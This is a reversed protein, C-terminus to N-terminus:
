RTVEEDRVGAPRDGESGLVDLVLVVVGIVVLLVGTDFVLASTAKVKGVVALEFEWAHHELLSNGLILSTIGMGGALLIGLGIAIEGRIPRRGAFQPRATIFRLVFAAGVVLGAIFGGGPQNHGALHLYLAILIVTQFLLRYVVDLVVSPEGIEGQRNPESM